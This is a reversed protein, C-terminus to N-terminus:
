NGHCGLGHFVNHDVTLGFPIAYGYTMCRYDSLLYLWAYQQQSKSNFEYRYLGVNIDVFKGTEDPIRCTYV